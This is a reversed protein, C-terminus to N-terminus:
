FGRDGDTGGNTKARLAYGVGWITHLLAPTGAVSIKNRVRNIIVNVVNTHRSLQGQWIRDLLASRSVPEPSALMLAELLAFERNTLDIRQKSRTVTRKRRDLELTDVRLVEPGDVRCRRFLAQMRALLEKRAPPKTLYDDAGAELGRIGDDKGLPTILILPTLVHEARFERITRLHDTGTMSAVLIVAAPTRDKLQQQMETEDHAVDTGYGSTRLLECVSDARQPEAEVVMVQM